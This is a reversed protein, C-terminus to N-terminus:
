GRRGRVFRVGNLNAKSLRRREGTDGYPIKKQTWKGNQDVAQGIQGPQADDIGPVTVGLNDSLEKVHEGTTPFSFSKNNPTGDPNTPEGPQAAFAPNQLVEDDANPMAAGVLDMVDRAKLKAGMEYARGWAEMKKEVDPSETDIRFHVQIDRAEPFNWDKIRKILEHTITEELNTADYKIIQLLTDLHLEAVGSGLGTAEAESSLVQGLIYRKIQHGFYNNIIDKLEAAGAVGPEIHEVGFLNGDDGPAVPVFIINHQNSIRQEAAAKMQALATPNGLPYRWIEIGMSSRELYEMLFALCEQKQFWAWYIRSRIGVGHITGADIGDEYAGDEITHKHIALLQREYDTLFYAPGRDTPEIRQSWKDSGIWEMNGFRAGVRIGVQNPVHDQTGDDFRFVLKDGHVPQWGIDEQGKAKPILRMVGAIQEWGWSHQIGYRGFWLAHLLNFRYETFRRIRRVIKEIQRCLEKHDESQEDEPELHWELLATARQRAEICEMILPDNRMFRANELSAKLAEDSTRYVKSFTGFLGQFTLVHPIVQQGFNPAMGPMDETPDKRREEAEKLKSQLFSAPTNESVGLAQMLKQVDNEDAM